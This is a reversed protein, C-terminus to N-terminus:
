IPESEKYVRIAFVLSLLPFVYNSITALWNAAPDHLSPDPIAQSYYVMMYISEMLLLVVSMVILGILAPKKRGLLLLTTLIGVIAYLIFVSWASEPDNYYYLDFGILYGGFLLRFIQIIVLVVADTSLTGTLSSNAQGM